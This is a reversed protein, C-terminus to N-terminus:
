LLQLETLFLFKRRLETSAQFLFRSCSKDNMYFTYIKKEYLTINVLYINKIVFFIRFIMIFFDILIINVVDYKKVV